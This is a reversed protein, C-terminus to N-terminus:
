VHARGIERLKFNYGSAFKPAQTLHYHGSRTSTWEFTGTLEPTVILPSTEANKGIQEKAVMATPFVVEITSEPALEVPNITIEAHLETPAPTKTDSRGKSPAAHSIATASVFALTMAPLLAFSFSTKM